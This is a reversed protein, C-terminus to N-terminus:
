NISELFEVIRRSAEPTYLRDDAIIRNIRMTFRFITRERTEARQVNMLTVNSFQRALDPINSENMSVGEVHLGDSTERFASIWLGGTEEVARNFRDFSVTLRINGESLEDLLVLQEQYGALTEEMIETQRVTQELESILREYRTNESQLREAEAVNQQYFHNLVIPSLGIAALLLIGHWRLKFVKQREHIYRPIISLDPYLKGATGSAGVAVAIATTFEKIKWEDSTEVDFVDPNLQFEAVEIDPFNEEFFDIAERGLTNDCLILRDLGPVDGTDLQFLLKSFVTNLFGRSGTGENIVPSIQLLEHGRFFIIRCHAERFQVLGTIKDADDRPAYNLRYLGTLAVEEPLVDRIFISSRKSIDNIRNLIKLSDPERDVSAISLIGERNIFYNYHDPAPIRDYVSQLRNEVLDRIEKKKASLYNADEVSQFVTDGSRINLGINHKRNKGDANLYTYLVMENSDAQDAEDVIDPEQVEPEESDDLLELDDLDDLDDFDIEEAGPEQKEEGAEDLGFIDDPEDASKDGSVSTGNSDFGTGLPTVLERRELSELFIKKGTVRIKVLDLSKKDLVIGTFEKAKFM